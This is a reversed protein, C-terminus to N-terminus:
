ALPGTSDYHLTVTVEHWRVDPQGAEALDAEAPADLVLAHDVAGGLTPDLALEQGLRLLLGDLRQAPTPAPDPAADRRLHIEVVARHEWGFLPTEGLVVEPDGPDGTRVILVGEPPIEDPRDANVEVTAGPVRRCLAALAEIVQALKTM